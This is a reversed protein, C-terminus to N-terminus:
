LGLAHFIQPEAGAVTAEDPLDDLDPRILM